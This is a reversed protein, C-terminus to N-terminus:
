PKVMGGCVSEVKRTDQSLGWPSQVTPYKLIDDNVRCTDRISGQMHGKEWTLVDTIDHICFDPCIKLGGGPGGDGAGEEM